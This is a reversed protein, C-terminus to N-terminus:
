VGWYTVYHSISDWAVNTPSDVAFNNEGPFLIPWLSGQTIVDALHILTGSRDIYVHKNKQESSIYLIDGVLFGGAPTVEFSWTPDTPDSIALSAVATTIALAFRFGHPATSLDDQIVTGAPDLGTIDVITADPARLMPDDCEITIQVQPTKTFQPAEFKKVFGSVVAVVTDANKFQIQVRGTRSSAIMRYLDDRLGSYSQTSFQPNLDVLIRIDRKEMMLNYFAQSGSGGYYHPVIDNADIGDVVRVSYPNQRTPDRFSLVAVQSSGEPHVEVSTLKM